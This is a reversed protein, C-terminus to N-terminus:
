KTELRNPPLESGPRIVMLTGDDLAVTATRDVLVNSVGRASGSPLTEGVLPYELGTTRVGVADGHMALLTVVDGAAGDISVVQGGHAVSIAASDLLARVSVHSLAPSSLVALNAASQDVRGGHGGLIVVEDAGERVAVEIALELDTFDKDVPYREVVVGDGELRDLLEPAISDLDGVIVDVPLGLALAHAAGSDAAVVLAVDSLTALDIGSPAVGGLVVVVTRRPVEGQTSRAIEDM